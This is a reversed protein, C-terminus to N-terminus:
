GRPAVVARPWLHERRHVVQEGSGESLLELRERSGGLERVRHEAVRDLEEDSVLRAVAVGALVPALPLRPRDRRPHALEHVRAVRQGALDDDEERGSGVGLTVLLLQAPHPQGRKPRGPAPVEALLLDGIQERVQAEEVVAVVVDSQRGHERRREDPHRVVAKHQKASGSGPSREEGRQLAAQRVADGLALLLQQAREELAVLPEDSRRRPPPELTQALLDEGLM